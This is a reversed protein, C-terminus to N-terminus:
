TKRDGSQRAAALGPAALVSSFSRCIPCGCLDSPPVTVGKTTHLWHGAQECLARLLRPFSSHTSKPEALTDLLTGLPIQDIGPEDFCELISEYRSWDNLMLVWKHFSGQCVRERTIPQTSDVLRLSVAVRDTDADQTRHAVDGRMLLADGLSIAPTESMDDINVDLTKHDGPDGGKVITRGPICAMNRAGRGRLFDHAAPSKTQLRGFPLVVVNSKEPIPKVIPIWVNLYNASQFLYYSDHDQHWGHSLKRTAFFNAHSLRDVPTGAGASGRLAELAYAEIKGRAEKSLPSTDYNANRRSQADAYQALLFSLLESDIFGKAVTFGDREYAGWDITNM